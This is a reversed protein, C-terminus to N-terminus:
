EAGAAVGEPPALNIRPNDRRREKDAIKHAERQSRPDVATIRRNFGADEDDVNDAEEGESVGRQDGIAEPRQPDASELQRCAETVHHLRDM